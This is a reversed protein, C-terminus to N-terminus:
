VAVSPAKPAQELWRRLVRQTPKSFLRHFVVGVAISCAFTAPYYLWPLRELGLRTLVRYVSIHSLYIEYSVSGVLVLPPWSLVRELRFGSGFAMASVLATFAPALAVYWIARIQMGAPNLVCLVITVVLALAFWVKRGPKSWFRILREHYIWCLCGWALADFRWHTEMQLVFTSFSEPHLATAIVRAGVSLVAAGVLYKTLQRAGLLYMAILVIYFQEEFCLSWMVLLSQPTYGYPITYNATFTPFSWLIPKIFQLNGRTHPDALVALLAVGLALFYPPWIRVVRRVIFDRAIAGKSQMSRSARVVCQHLSRTVLIGSIAFFIEVGFAGRKVIGLESLALNMPWHVSLVWLISIARLGDLAPLYRYLPSDKGAPAPENSPWPLSAEEARAPEHVPEIKM